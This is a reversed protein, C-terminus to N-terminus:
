PGRRPKGGARTATKETPMYVMVLRLADSGPYAQAGAPLKPPNQIDAGLVVFPYEGEGGERLNSSRSGFMSSM